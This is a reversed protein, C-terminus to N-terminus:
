GARRQAGAEGELIARGVGSHPSFSPSLPRLEAGRRFTRGAARYRGREVQIRALVLPYRWNTKEKEIAREIDEQAAILDGQAEEVLALQEYPTAAWPQADVAQQALERSRPLDGDRAAAQSADLQQNAVIGPVQFAAVALACVALAARPGIRRARPVTMNLEIESGAAIAIAIAALAFATVATEQWMWDIGAAVLFVCYASCMAVALAVGDPDTIRRRASLAVGLLGGLLGIVLLLGPLGMEALSELYLSHANRVNEPDRADRNWWFEFTGPGTGDLPHADFASLASGWLNSRNGGTNLLRESQSTVKDQTNFEHWARSIPGQAALGVVLASAALLPPVAYRVTRRPLRLRDIQLRYTALAAGACALGTLALTAAVLGGGGGGTADAIQGQGEITVIAIASGVAAALAHASATWRNRSLLLVAVVAVGVGVVAGRSYTLYVCAAAMPLAALSVARTLALRAHSSWALCLAITMAGWAGVANWYDLPYSLRDIRFGQALDAAGPLVSPFLRSGLALATVGVAAISLGAAAARSTRRDLATVGLTILGLYGLLRAIEATTRENSETWVLSLAMWSVLAAAALLPVLLGPDFRNRTLVGTALGVAILLWVILAVQQRVVLDYGGGNVALYALLGAAAAFATLSRALHWADRGSARVEPEDAVSVM